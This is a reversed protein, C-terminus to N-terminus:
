HYKVSGVGTDMDSDEYTTNKLRISGMGTDASVKDFVCDRFRIGGMGTEADMVEAEVERVKISGMGTSLKVEDLNKGPGFLIEGMGTEADIQVIDRLDELVLDGMGSELTIEKSGNLKEIEIDGLGSGLDLSLGRPVEADLKGLVCPQDSRSRTRIEGDDDLYADGDGPEFEILEIRLVAERGDGPRVSIDGVHAYYTLLDDLKLKLEIQRRHKLRVGDVEVGEEAFHKVLRSSGTAGLLLAGLAILIGIRKM